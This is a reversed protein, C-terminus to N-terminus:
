YHSTPNPTPVHHCRGDSKSNARVPQSINRTPATKMRTMRRRLRFKPKVLRGPTPLNITSLTLGAMKMHATQANSFKRSNFQASDRDSSILILRGLMRSTKKGNTELMRSLATSVMQSQRVTQS